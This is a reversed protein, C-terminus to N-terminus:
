EVRECRANWGSADPMGGVRVPCDVWEASPIGGVRVPCDVWECQANWGSVSPVLPCEWGSVGPCIGGVVLLSEVLKPLESLNLVEGM